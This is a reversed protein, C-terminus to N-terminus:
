VDQQAQVPTIQSKQAVWVAFYEKSYISVKGGEVDEWLLKVISGEPLESGTLNNVIDETTVYMM